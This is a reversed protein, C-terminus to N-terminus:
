QVSKDQGLLWAAMQELSRAIGEGYNEGPGEESGSRVDNAANTMVGAAESQSIIGKDILLGCLRFIAFSSAGHIITEPSKWGSNQNKMTTEQEIPQNSLTSPAAFVM